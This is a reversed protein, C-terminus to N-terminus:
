GNDVEKIRRFLLGGNKVHELLPQFFRPALESKLNALDEDTAKYWEHTPILNQPVRYFSSHAMVHEGNEACLPCEITMATTGEATDVTVTKHNVPCVYVNRKGEIPKKNGQNWLKVAILNEEIARLMAIEKEYEAIHQPDELLAMSNQLMQRDNVIYEIQEKITPKTNPLNM